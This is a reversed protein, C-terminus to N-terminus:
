FPMNSHKKPLRKNMRKGAMLELVGAIKARADDSTIIEDVCNKEAAAFASAENEAYEAALKTREAAVDAAGKLKDHWLFEVATVPALPSIVADAYAFTMDANATGFAVMASGYAKGTVVSVKVTTAEAYANALKALDRINDNSM